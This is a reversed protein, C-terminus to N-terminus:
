SRGRGARRDIADRYAQALRETTAHWTFARARDLGACALDRAWAADSTVRDIASAWGDVDTPEILVGGTGVVEPLSGRNSALVPVGASMAELATLGFGEDLSPLALARAGAFLAERGADEVYGIYEVHSKLPPQSMRALWQDADPTARGAVVLRARSAAGALSTFADLIVGVNKRAELTGLVLV